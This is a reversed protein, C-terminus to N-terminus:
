SYAKMACSRPAASPPNPVATRLSTLSMAGCTASIRIFATLACRSNARQRRHSQLKHKMSTPEMCPHTISASHRDCTVYLLHFFNFLPPASAGDRARGGYPM